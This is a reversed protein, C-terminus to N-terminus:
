GLSMALYIKEILLYDVHLSMWSNDMVQYSFQFQYGKTLWHEHSYSIITRSRAFTYLNWRHMRGCLRIGSLYNIIDHVHYIEQSYHTFTSYRYYSSRPQPFYCSTCFIEIASLWCELSYPLHVKPFTFNLAFYHNFDFDLIVPKMEYGSKFVGCFQDLRMKQEITDQVSCYELNDKFCQYLTLMYETIKFRIKNTCFNMVM